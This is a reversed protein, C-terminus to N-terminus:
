QLLSDWSINVDLPQYRCSHEYAVQLNGTEAIATRIWWAGTEYDVLGDGDEGVLRGRGDDLLTGGSTPLTVSISGPALDRALNHWTVDHFVQEAALVVMTALAQPVGVWRLRLWEQYEQPPPTGYGPMQFFHETRGHQFLSAGVAPSFPAYAPVEQVYTVPGFPAAASPIIFRKGTRPVVAGGPLTVDPPAGHEFQYPQALTPTGQLSEGGALPGEAALTAAVTIVTATVDEIIYIGDNLATGSVILGMGVQYGDAVFSGSSATVTGPPGAAFTLTRGGAAIVETPTVQEGEENLAHPRDMRVVVNAGAPIDRWELVGPKRRIFSHVGANPGGSRGEVEFPGGVGGLRLRGDRADKVTAM